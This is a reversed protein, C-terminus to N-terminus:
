CKRSCEFNLEDRFWRLLAIEFFFNRTDKTCGVCFVRVKLLNGAVTQQGVVRTLGGLAFIETSVPAM